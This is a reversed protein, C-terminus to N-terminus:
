YMKFQHLWTTDKMFNERIFIILFLPYEGTASHHNETMNLMMDLNKCSKTANFQNLKHYLAM